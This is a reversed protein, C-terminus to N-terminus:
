AGGVADSRIAETVPSAHLAAITATVLNNSESRIAETGPSGLLAAITETVVNDSDAEQTLATNLDELTIGFESDAIGGEAIEETLEGGGLSQEPAMFFRSRKAEALEQTLRECSAGGM